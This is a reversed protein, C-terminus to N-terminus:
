EAKDLINKTHTCKKHSLLFAVASKNLTVFRVCPRCPELLPVFDSDKSYVLDGVCPVPTGSKDDDARPENQPSVERATRHIVKKFWRNASMADVVDAASSVRVGVEKLVRFLDNRRSPKVKGSADVNFSTGSSGLGVVAAEYKNYPLPICDQESPGAAM